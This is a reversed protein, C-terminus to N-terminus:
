RNSIVAVSGITMCASVNSSGAAAALKTFSGATHTRLLRVIWSYCCSQHIIRCYPHPAVQGGLDGQDLATIGTPNTVSVTEESHNIRGSANDGALAAILTADLTLRLDRPFEDPLQLPTVIDTTLQEESIGIAFEIDPRAYPSSIM